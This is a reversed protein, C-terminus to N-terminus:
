PRGDEILASLKLVECCEYLELLLSYFSSKQLASWEKISAKGNKIDKNLHALGVYINAVETRTFGDFRSM